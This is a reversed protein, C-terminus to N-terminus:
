SSLRTVYLRSAGRMITAAANAVSQAWQFQLFGTGTVEILIDEKFANSNTLNGTYLIASALAAGQFRVTEDTVVTL